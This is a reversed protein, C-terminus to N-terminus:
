ETFVCYCYYDLGKCVVKKYIVYNHSNFYRAATFRIKLTGMEYTKGNMKYYFESALSHNKFHVHGYRFQIVDTKNKM